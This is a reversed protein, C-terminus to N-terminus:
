LFVTSPYPEAKFSEKLLILVLFPLVNKVDKAADIPIM